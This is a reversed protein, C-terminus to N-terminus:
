KPSACAKRFIQLQERLAKLEMELVDKKIALDYMQPNKTKIQELWLAHTVRPRSIGERAKQKRAADLEKQREYQKASEQEYQQPKTLKLSELWALKEGNKERRWAESQAKQERRLVKIRNEVVKIENRKDRVREEMDFVQPCTGSASVSEEAIGVGAFLCFLFLGLLTGLNKQMGRGETVNNNLRM